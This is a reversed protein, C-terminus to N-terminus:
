ESRECILRDHLVRYREATEEVIECPLHPPPSEKDWGSGELWDRVFQKDFNPQPRGPRWEDKPWFRSSDPTCVEDILVIELGESTVQLGFEFKTDALIIGRGEAYKSAELYINISLSLLKQALPRAYEPGFIGEKEGWRALHLIMEHLTINEDHGNEKKTAPTFIPKVLRSGEKLGVPLAIGCVGGNNRYEKWGSGALYGRVVCEIPVVYEMKQVVMSRGVLDYEAIDKAGLQPVNGIDLTHFHTALHLKKELHRFWFESISTLVKGKGPIPTPLVVDFCSIRDTAVILLRNEDIEYMDRVKGRKMLKLPLETEFIARM